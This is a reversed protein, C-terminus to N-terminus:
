SILDPKQAKPFPQAFQTHPRVILPDRSPHNSSSDSSKISLSVKERELDIAIVRLQLQQGLSVVDMPHTVFRDAM